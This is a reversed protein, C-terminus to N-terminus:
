RKTKMSSMKADHKRQEEKVEEITTRLQSLMIDMEFPMMYDIDSYNFSILDTRMLAYIRKYYLEATDGAFM